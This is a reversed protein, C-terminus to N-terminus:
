EAIRTRRVWQFTVPDGGGDNLDEDVREFHEYGGLHRVKIYDVDATVTHERDSRSLTAPGGTLVATMDNGASGRVGAVGDMGDEEGAVIRPLTNARESRVITRAMM